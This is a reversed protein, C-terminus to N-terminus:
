LDFAKKIENYLKGYEESIDRNASFYRSEIRAYHESINGCTRELMTFMERGKERQWNQPPLCELADEWQEATIEVWPKCLQSKQAQELMPLVDDLDAIIYGDDLFPKVPDGSYGCVQDGNDKTAIQTYIKTEGPKYLVTTM